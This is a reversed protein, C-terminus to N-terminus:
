NQIERWLLASNYSDKKPFIYVGGNNFTSKINQKIKRIFVFKNGNISFGVNCAIPDGDSLFPCNVLTQIRDNIALTVQFINILNTAAIFGKLIFM